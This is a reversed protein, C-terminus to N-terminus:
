PREPQGSSPSEDDDGLPWLDVEVIARSWVARRLRFELEVADEAWTRRSEETKWGGAYPDFHDEFFQQWDGLADLLSASIDLQRYPGSLPLDYAYEPSLLIAPLDDAGPVGNM